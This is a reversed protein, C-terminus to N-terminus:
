PLGQDKQMQNFVKPFDIDLPNEIGGNDVEQTPMASTNVINGRFTAPSNERSEDLDIFIKTMLLEYFLFLTYKSMVTAKNIITSTVLSDM